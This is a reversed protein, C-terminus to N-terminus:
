SSKYSYVCYLIVLIIISVVLVFLPSAGRSTFVLLKFHALLNSKFESQDVVISKGRNTLCELWLINNSLISNTFVGHACMIVLLGSNVRVIYVVPFDGLLEGIDYLKNNNEDVFSFISTNATYMLEGRSSTGTINFVYPTDLVVTINWYSLEVLVKLPNSKSFVPDRIFGLYTAEFGLGRFISETFERSGYTVVIGGRSAFGYIEELEASDLPTNRALVLVTRAANLSRLSTISTIWSAEQGYLDRHGYESSSLVYYDYNVPLVIILSVVVLIALLALNVTFLFSHNRMLV